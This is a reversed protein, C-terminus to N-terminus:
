LSDPVGYSEGNDESNEEDPATETPDARESQAELEAAIEALEEDDIETDPASPESERASDATAQETEAADIAATLDDPQPPDDIDRATELPREADSRLSEAEAGDGTAYASAAQALWKAAQGFANAKQEARAFATQREETVAFRAASNCQTTAEEFEERAREFDGKALLWEEASFENMASTFTRRGEDYHAHGVRYRATAIDGSGIRDVAERIAEGPPPEELDDTQWTYQVEGDPDIVVVARHSQYGADPDDVAVGYATAVDGDTDALLPVHLDYQAAFARHSYVSDGSIGLVTVDQQMTFLEIEDLDTHEGDCCPNFDAPYFALVVVDGRHDTLATSCIDGDVVARLSFQPATEGESIM